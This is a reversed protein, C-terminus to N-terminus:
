PGSILHGLPSPLGSRGARQWLQRPPRALGVALLEWWVCGPHPSGPTIFAWIQAGRPRSGVGRGPLQVGRGEEAVGTMWTDRIERWLFWRHKHVNVQSVTGLLYLALASFAPGGVPLCCARPGCRDQSRARAPHAPRQPSVPGPTQPSAQPGSPM